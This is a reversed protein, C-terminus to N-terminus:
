YISIFFILCAFRDSNFLHSFYCLLFWVFIHLSIVYSFFWVHFLIFSLKKMFLKMKQKSGNIALLKKEETKIRKKWFKEFYDSANHFRQDSSWRIKQRFLVLFLFGSFHNKPDSVIKSTEWVAKIYVSM